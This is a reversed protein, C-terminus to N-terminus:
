EGNVATQVTVTGDENLRVQMYCFTTGDGWSSLVTFEGVKLDEKMSDLHFSGSGGDPGKYNIMGDSDPKLTQVSGELVKYDSEDLEPIAIDDEPNNEGKMREDFENLYAAARDPDANSPDIPLDFIVSSGRFSPNATIAGTAENYDFANIDYFTTTSVCLYLGRDAFIEIGDCEILRYLVGDEIVEAYSGGMSAINYQWPTLGKVLLSVFFPSNGYEPDNASPMPSGDKRQISVVAYTRDPNTDAASGTFDALGKGSLIGHLTFSYDGSEKTSNITVADESQFAAALKNDGIKRAIQGPNLFTWAAFTTASLLFTLAIAAFVYTFRRKYTPTRMKKEKIRDMIQNNLRSDPEIEPSLVNKLLTDIQESNKM